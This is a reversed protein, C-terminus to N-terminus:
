GDAVVWEPDVETAETAYYWSAITHTIVAYASAGILAIFPVEAFWTGSLANAAFGFLGVFIVFALPYIAADYVDDYDEVVIRSGESKLSYTIAFIAYQIKQIM